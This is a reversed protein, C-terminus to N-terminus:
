VFHQELQPNDTDITINQREETAYSVYEGSIICLRLIDIDMAGHVFPIALPAERFTPNTGIGNTPSSTLTSFAYHAPNAYPYQRKQYYDSVEPRQRFLDETRSTVYRQPNEYPKEVKERKSKAHLSTIM